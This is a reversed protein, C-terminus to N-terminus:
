FPIQFRTNSFNRLFSFPFPKEQKVPRQRVKLGNASAAWSGGCAGASVGQGPWSWCGVSCAEGERARAVGRRVARLCAVGRPPQMGTGDVAHVGTAGAREAGCCWARAEAEVGSRMQERERESGKSFGFPLMVRERGGDSAVTEAVVNRRRHAAEARNGAHWAGGGGGRRRVLWQATKSAETLSLRVNGAHEV